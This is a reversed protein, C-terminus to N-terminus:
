SCEGGLFFDIGDITLHKAKLSRILKALFCNVTLKGHGMDDSVIVFSETTSNDIHVCLSCLSKHSTGTVGIYNEAFDIQVVINRGNVTKKKKDKFCEAQKRQIFMNQKFYKVVLENVTSRNM